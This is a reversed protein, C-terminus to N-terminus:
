NNKLRFLQCLHSQKVCSWLASEAIFTPRSGPKRGPKKWRFAKADYEAAMHLNPFIDGSAFLRRRNVGAKWTPQEDALKTKFVRNRSTIRYRARSDDPLNFYYHRCHSEPLEHSASIDSIYLIDSTQLGLLSLLITKAPGIDRRAHWDSGHVGDATDVTGEPGVHGCVLAILRM